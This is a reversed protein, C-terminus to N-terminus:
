RLWSPLLTLPPSLVGAIAPLLALASLLTILLAFVLGKLARKM